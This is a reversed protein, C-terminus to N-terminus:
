VPKTFLHSFISSFISYIFPSLVAVVFAMGSVKWRWKLLMNNQSKLGTITIEMNNIKQHLDNLEEKKVYSNKVSSDLETVKQFVEKFKLEVTNSLVSLINGQSALTASIDKLQQMILSTLQDQKM